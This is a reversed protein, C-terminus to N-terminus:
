PRAGADHAVVAFEPTVGLLREFPGLMLSRAWEVDRLRELSPNAWGASEAAEVVAAPPVGGGAFPLRDILRQDYPAHHEPERRRLREVRVRARERVHEGRDGRGWVGGFSVLRGGPTVGRWARLAAVPDPLTWLLLREVVVEFPGAPPSDAPAEAIEVALDEDAARRRLEALMEPSLDLATVRYGLRALAISLFGTGAGVDLVRAPPPPLLRTLAANWAGRQAPTHMAHDPDREYTPADANWYARLEARLDADGDVRPNQTYIQPRDVSLCGRRM